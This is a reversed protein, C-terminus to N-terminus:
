RATLGLRDGPPPAVGLDAALRVLDEYVDAALPIGSGSRAARTARERDGPVRVAPSGPIPQSGRLEDFLARANRRFESLPTLAEVQICLFFQGIAAGDAGYVHRGWEAGALPGCLLDVLLGFGYGKHGGGDAGGFPLLAHGGGPRLGDLAAAADAVPRGQDDIVWEAGTTAGAAALRELRGRPVVSTATDFVFPEREDTPMAVALPNTGYMPETGNTPAVQAAANSAVIGVLGARAALRAYYGAIGFHNSRCLTVAGLGTARAKEISLTVAQVAAPQGLGNGADLTATTSTERVVRVTSRARITGRRVGDVYRRLRATGHGASGGLDATILVDAVTRADFVPVDVAVLANVAFRELDAARVVVDRVSENGAERSM